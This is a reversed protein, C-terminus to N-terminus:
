LVKVVVSCLMKHKDMANLMKTSPKAVPWNCGRDASGRGTTGRRSRAMDPLAVGEGPRLQKRVECAV